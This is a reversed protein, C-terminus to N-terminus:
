ELVLDVDTIKAYIFFKSGNEEAELKLNRSGIKAIVFEIYAFKSSKDKLTAKYGVKLASKAEKVVAPDIANREKIIEKMKSHIANCAEIFEAKSEVMENIEAVLTQALEIKQEKTRM